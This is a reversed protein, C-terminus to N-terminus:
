TAWGNKWLIVQIRPSYRFGYKKCAEAVWLANKEYTQQTGGAPMLYIPLEIGYDGYSTKMALADTLDDPGSIVWKFFSTNSERTYLYSKVANPKFRDEFKEGSSALKSSIAFTTQKVFDPNSLISCLEKSLPKTGNTEITLYIEGLHRNKIETILEIYNKQWGLLPEGGTLILHLNKSFEKYDLLTEIKDVIETITMFPSLEKFRPHWALYSDCGTHVLPFDEYRNYKSIDIEDCETSLQNPPMGYGRCEFNCGFTRIFISPIGQHLGEGQLSYFIESIKIKSNNKM